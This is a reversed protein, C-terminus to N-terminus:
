VIAKHKGYTYGEMRRVVIYLSIEGGVLIIGYVLSAGIANFNWLKLILFLLLVRLCNVMADVKPKGFSHILSNFLGIYMTIITSIGIVILIFTSKKYENDLLILQILSIAILVFFNATFFLLSKKYIKRKFILIDKYCSIKSVSPIIITRMTDNFLSFIVVFTLAAGYLSVEGLQNQAALVFQPVKSLMNYCFVSMLIWKSYDLSKKLIKLYRYFPLKICFFYKFKFFYWLSILFTLPILYLCLIVGKSSFGYILSIVCFSFFRLLAYYLNYLSFKTFQSQAQETARITTWLSLIAASSITLFFLHESMLKIDLVFLLVELPKAIFILLLTFLLKFSLIVYLQEKRNKYKREANYNRVLTLSIGLDFLISLTLIYSISLTLYGFDIANLKKSAIIVILFNVLNNFLNSFFVYTFKKNYSSLFYKIIKQM